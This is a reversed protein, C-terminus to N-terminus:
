IFGSPPIDVLEQQLAIIVLGATNRCGLKQLLNIRHGEVTRPSIFLREGIEVTTLEECILQLVEKERESLTLSFPTKLQPRSKNVINKRIVDMVEPSYYFGKTAVEKMCLEMEEPAANKAIYAVAGLELMKLIYMKSFYSSLVIYKLTPFEQQILQAADIGNMGPMNLDILLLDPLTEASRLQEMLEMGNSAEFQLTAGFDSLLLSIGKRFLAEDDALAVTM